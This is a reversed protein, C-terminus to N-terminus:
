KRAIKDKHKKGCIGIGLGRLFRWEFVRKKIGPDEKEGHGDINNENEKGAVFGVAGKFLAVDFFGGFLLAGIVPGCDLM